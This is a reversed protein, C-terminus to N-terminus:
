IAGTLLNILYSAFMLSKSLAGARLIKQPFLQQWRIMNKLCRPVKEDLEGVGRIGANRILRWWQDYATVRRLRRVGTTALMRLKEPILVERLFPIDHQSSIGDAGFEAVVIELYKVRISNDSFCRINLDWDAHARYRLNYDGIRDFLNKKYFIAQHSINRSLLKEFTFEGDYLGKYSSSVVNGYVLDYGSTNPESFIAQLVQRDLLWDDCGLFYVWHGHALGIGKNMADYVGKDKESVFRIRSDRGANEEIIKVTDDGSAGDVILVEWEQWDQALISDLTRQLTRSGNFTAIIITLLPSHM